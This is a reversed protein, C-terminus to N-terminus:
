TKDEGKNRAARGKWLFFAGVCLVLVANVALFRILVDKWEVGQQVPAPQPEEQVPVAPEKPIPSPEEPLPLDDELEEEPIYFALQKEREFTLGLARLRLLYEGREEPGIMATYVGDGAGLDGHTADDHLPVSIGAEGKPLIEATVRVDQIQLPTRKDGAPGENLWVELKIEADPLMLGEKFSTM